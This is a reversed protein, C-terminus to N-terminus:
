DDGTMRFEQEYTKFFNTKAIQKYREHHRRCTNYMGIDKSVM